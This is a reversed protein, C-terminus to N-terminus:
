IGPTCPSQLNTHCVTQGSTQNSPGRIDVSFNILLFAKYSCGFSSVGVSFLRPIVDCITTGKHPTGITTVSIAWTDRGRESFYEQHRPDGNAMLDILLRVTTGGQSHCIFHVKNERSWQWDVYKRPHETFLIARKRRTTRTKEPGQDEPSHGPDRDFYHGYNIDLDYCNQVEEDDANYAIFRHEYNDPNQASAQQAKVYRGCTLEKYLECAREWNSSLPAISSVIVTHGQKM